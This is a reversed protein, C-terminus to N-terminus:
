KWGPNFDYVDKLLTITANMQSEVNGLLFAGINQACCVLNGTMFTFFFLLIVLHLVKTWMNNDFILSHIIIPFVIGVLTIPIGGIVSLVNCFSPVAICVTYIFIIGISRIALRRWNIRLPVDLTSEIHLYVPNITLIAELLLHLSMAIDCVAVLVRIIFSLHTYQKFIEEVSEPIADGFMSYPIAGAVIYLMTLVVFVIPIVKNINKPNKVFVAVNPIMCSPGGTAFAFLGFVIFMKEALTGPDEPGPPIDVHFHYKLIFCNATVAALSVSSAWVAFAAAGYIDVLTGYFM